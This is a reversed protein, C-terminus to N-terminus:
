WRGGDRPTPSVGRAPGSTGDIDRYSREAEAELARWQKNQKGQWAEVRKWRQFLVSWENGAAIATYLPILVFLGALAVILKKM